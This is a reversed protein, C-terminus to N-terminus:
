LKSGLPIMDCLSHTNELVSIQKRNHRSNVLEYLDYHKM